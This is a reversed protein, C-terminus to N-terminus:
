TPVSRRTRELIARAHDTTKSGQWLPKMGIFTRDLLSAIRLLDPALDAQLGQDRFAGRPGCPLLCSGRRVSRARAPVVGPSLTWRVRM